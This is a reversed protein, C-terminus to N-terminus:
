AYTYERPLLFQAPGLEYTLGNVINLDVLTMSGGGGIATIDGILIGMWDTGGGPNNGRDAAQWNGYGSWCWWSAVGSKQATATQLTWTIYMDTGVLLTDFQSSTINREILVESPSGVFRDWDRYGNTDIDNQSPVPGSMIRLKGPYTVNTSAMAPSATLTSLIAPESSNSKGAIRRAIATTFKITPM